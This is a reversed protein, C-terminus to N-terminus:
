GPTQKARQSGKESIHLPVVFYANWGSHQEHLQLCRALQATETLLISEHIMNQKTKDVKDHLAGGMTYEHLIQFHTYYPLKRKISM